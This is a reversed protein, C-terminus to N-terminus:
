APLYEKIIEALRSVAPEFLISGHYCELPRVVLEGLEVTDWGNTPDEAHLGQSAKVLIVTGPYPGPQYEDAMKRSDQELRVAQRPLSGRVLEKRRQRKRFFGKIKDQGTDRYFRLYELRGHWDSHVLISTHKKLLMWYYSVRSEDLFGAAGTKKMNYTDLMIVVPMPGGAKLIMSAMELAIKGGLSEGVLVWPEKLRLARIENIYFTAVSNISRAGRETPETLDQLAYVPLSAPLRKALHHIRTPYGGKGPIFFMPTGGEGTNIELIPAFGKSGQERRILGALKRITPALLLVSVPLELGMQEELDTFLLLGVLSDGGVEFFDDEVGIGQIGIHQEWLRLLKEELEDSAPVYQNALPPRVLHPDPLQSIAIKGTTTLPMKELNILYHPLTQAPFKEALHKRLESPPINIGAQSTFYAAVRKGGGPVDVARTAVQTVGPYALLHSELSDLEIRVGKIKVMNDIRGLHVLMGDPRIMGLDGSRFYQWGPHLPDPIFKEATLVPNNIYGRALADGHIVIEGEQGVPLPNRDKDWILLQIDDKPMGSPLHEEGFDYNLPFITGAVSQTETSAFGLRLGTVAPFHKRVDEIDKHLRKEAGCHFTKVAPFVDEDKLISMLSRFLTPSSHYVTIAHRRMFDPLGGLGDANVDYYYIGCGIVLASFLLTHAASYSFSSLQVVHDGPDYSHSVLKQHITRALYRFDEVAGKPKGTSGSTFLIQIVDEGALHVEPEEIEGELSWKDINIVQRSGGDLKRALPEYTSVTLIVQIEATEIMAQLTAEPYSVDLPVVYNGSKVVGIMAPILQLVDKMLLGVGVKKRGTEQMLHARLHNSLRNVETFTLSGHTTVLFPMEANAQVTSKVLGWYDNLIMERTYQNLNFTPM